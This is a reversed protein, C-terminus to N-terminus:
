SRGNEDHLEHSTIFAGMMQNGVVLTYWWFTFSASHALTSLSLSLTSVETVNRINGLTNRESGGSGACVRGRVCVTSQREFVFNFIDLSFFAIMDNSM